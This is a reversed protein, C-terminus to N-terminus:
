ARLWSPCKDLSEQWEDDPTSDAVIGGGVHWRVERESVLATRIVVSLDMDGRVDVYGVVGSYWGRPGAELEALREMARLKPAGTMSGPPFCARALEWPPVEARLRGTITSTLQHVTAYTEVTYLAPVRVSGIECVRGLDNRMLDVIMVNEARDKESKRLGARLRLDEAPTAGRPRTGKMPRAHIRGSRLDVFREPSAGALCLGRGPALFAAFPAPTRARLTLVLDLATGHRPGSMAYTACAQYYEGNGIDELIATIVQEHRSPDLTPQVRTRPGSSTSASGTSASRSGATSGSGIFTAGTPSSAVCSSATGSASPLPGGALADRVGDMREQALAADPVAKPTTLGWSAIWARGTLRDVAVFTDYFGWWAHPEGQEPADWVGAGAAGRCGYGWVGIAGGCFPLDTAAVTRVPGVLAGVAAFPDDGEHCVAEALPLAAAITWRGLGDALLSSDLCVVGAATGAVPDWAAGSQVAWRSLADLLEPTSPPSIAQMFVTPDLYVDRGPQVVRPRV